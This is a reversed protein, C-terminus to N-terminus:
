QLMSHSARYKVYMGGKTTKKNYPDFGLDDRKTERIAGYHSFESHSVLAHLLADRSCLHIMNRGLRPAHDM